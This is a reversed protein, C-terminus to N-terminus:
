NGRVQLAFPSLLNKMCINIEQSVGPIAVHICAHPILKSDKVRKIQSLIYASFATHLWSPGSAPVM